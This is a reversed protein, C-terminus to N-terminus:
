PLGTFRSKEVCPSCTAKLKKLRDYKVFDYYAALVHYVFGARGDLVGLRFFYNYLFRLGPKLWRKYLSPQTQLEELWQAELATYQELKKFYVDLSATSYHLLEGELEGVEGEVVVKEHVPQVFRGKGKRFLRLVKERGQGGFRLVRGFLINTRRVYFGNKHSHGRMLRVISERLGATVEEDADISFIWETRAQEIGYNKQNSFNDFSRRYIRSTYQSARECTQDRSGGDVVIIEDAWDLSHLCREIRSEENLTIIVASVASM